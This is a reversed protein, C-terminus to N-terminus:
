GEINQRHGPSKLWGEVVENASMQGFAVNEAWSNVGTIQKRLEGVRENFGDHSFPVKGEAMNKSHSFASASIAENMSLVALKKGLRHKNILQLIQLEMKKLEE